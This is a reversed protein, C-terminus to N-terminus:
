AAEEAKQILMEAGLDDIKWPDARKRVCFIPKKWTAELLIDCEAEQNAVGNTEGAQHFLQSM